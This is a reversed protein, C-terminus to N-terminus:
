RKGEGEKEGKLEIQFLCGRLYDLQPSVDAQQNFAFSFNIILITGM